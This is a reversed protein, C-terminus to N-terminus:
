KNKLARFIGPEFVLTGEQDAQDQDDKLPAFRWEKAYEVLAYDIESIGTTEHGEAHKVMGDATIIIQLRASNYSTSQSRNAEKVAALIDSLPPMFIVLRDKADGVITPKLLGYGSYEERNSDAPLRKESQLIEDISVKYPRAESIYNRDSYVKVRKFILGGSKSSFSQFIRRTRSGSFSGPNGFEDRYSGDDLISGLFSVDSFGGHRGGVPVIVITIMFFWFLHWFFSIILARNFNIKFIM